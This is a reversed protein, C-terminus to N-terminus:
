ERIVGSPTSVATLPVDSEQMLIQYYGDVLDLASYLTCGSMNNLLVDKRSNPTQASVTANNLKIYAHILRWMGNSKRVCFTPTSHPSKSERVVGSKAKEAFFADIVECQERPLPWQRTVCYKTGPVLDIEHRVGRDPPLQSPPHKSVVDSYEKVLPYVPDEPNKLTEFGLRTARQKTFGEQVDEDMVSSSNLDEPSTELKLLVMEAIEGAKLEALFDKMSQEELNLLASVEIM